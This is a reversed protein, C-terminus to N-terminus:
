SAKARRVADLAGKVILIAPPAMFAYMVSPMELVATVQAQLLQAAQVQVSLSGGNFLAYVYIIGAVGTLITLLGKFGKFAISLASTVALFLAAPLLMSSLALTIKFGAPAMSKVYSVAYTPAVYLLAIVVIFVLAALVLRVLSPKYM